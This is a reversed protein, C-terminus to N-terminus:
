SSSTNTGNKDKSLLGKGVLLARLRVESEKDPLGHKPLFFSLVRGTWFYFANEDTTVHTYVNWSAKSSTLTTCLEIYENTLNFTVPETPRAYSARLKRAGRRLVWPDIFKKTLLIAILLVFAPVFSLLSVSLYNIQDTPYSMSHIVMWIIAAVCLPIWLWSYRYLVSRNQLFRAARSVDEDSYSVELSFPIFDTM